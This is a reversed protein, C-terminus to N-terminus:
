SATGMLVQRKGSDLVKTGYIHDMSWRTALHELQLQSQMRPALQRAFVCASKHFFMSKADEAQPSVFVDFGFLKGIKGNRLAESGGSEDVRVFEAIALIAAESAPSVVASRDSQPVKAINLLKRATLIDAKAIDSGAYAQMHDPSSTSVGAELANLITLDMEAALDKAAQNLYEQTFSVKAQLSAIDEVLFQIVKHKDMLLSDTSMANVQADVATNEAKTAVTFNSFRPIKLTDMGPGVASSMDMVIPPMIAEATLVQQVMASVVEEITADVETLGTLADAM